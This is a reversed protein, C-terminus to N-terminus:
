PILAVFVLYALALIFPSFLVINWAGLDKINTIFNGLSISSVGVNTTESGSCTTANCTVSPSIMSLLVTIIGFYVVVFIVILSGNADSGSM